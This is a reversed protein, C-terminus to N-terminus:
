PREDQLNIINQIYISCNLRIEKDKNDSITWFKASEVRGIGKIHELYYILDVCHNFSGEVIVQRTSVQIGTVTHAFPKYNVVLLDSDLCYSSISYVLNKDPHLTDLVYKDLIVQLSDSMLKYNRSETLNSQDEIKRFEEYQNIQSFTTKISFRYFLIGTLIFLAILFQFKRKYTYRSKM